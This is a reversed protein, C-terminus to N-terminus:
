PNAARLVPPARGGPWRRSVPKLEARLVPGQGRRPPTELEREGAGDLALAHRPPVRYKARRGAMSVLRAAVERGARALRLGAIWDAPVVTYVGSRAARVEAEAV